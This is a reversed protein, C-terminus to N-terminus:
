HETQHKGATGASIQMNTLMLMTLFKAQRMVMVCLLMPLLVTVVFMMKMQM